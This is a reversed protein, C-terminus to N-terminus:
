DANVEGLSRYVCVAGTVGSAFLVVYAWTVKPSSLRDAKSASTHEMLPEGILRRLSMRPNFTRPVFLLFASYATVLFLVVAVGRLFKRQPKNM